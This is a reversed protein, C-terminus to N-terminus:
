DDSRTTIAKLDHVNVYNRVVLEFRGPEQALVHAIADADPLGLRELAIQIKIERATAIAYAHTGTHGQRWAHANADYWSVQYQGRGYGILRVRQRATWLAENLLNM